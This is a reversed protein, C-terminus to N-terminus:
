AGLSLRHSVHTQGQLVERIAAVLEAGADSKLVYGSAGADLAESAFAPDTYMTVLIIKSRTNMERLKRTAEMGNLVPMSLDMVIVDPQLQREAALAEEGNTATGVVEFHRSLISCLGELFMRHDDVLLVRPLSM